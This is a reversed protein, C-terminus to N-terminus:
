MAGLQFRKEIRGSFARSPAPEDGFAPGPPFLKCSLRVPNSLSTAQVDRNLWEMVGDAGSFRYAQVSDLGLIGPFSGVINIIPHSKCATNM